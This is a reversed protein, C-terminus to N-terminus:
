GQEGTPDYQRNNQDSIPRMRDEHPICNGNEDPAQSKYIINAPAPNSTNICKYTCTNSVGFSDTGPVGGNMPICLYDDCGDPTEPWFDDPPDSVNVFTFGDPSGPQPGFPSSVPEDATGKPDLGNIPNNQCYGYLNIGGRYGIPDRTLFRGTSPDYFRHTCLILGLYRDSYYGWQGGFGVFDSGGSATSTRAGYGDYLDSSLVAGGGDLRQAVNGREDFTYFTSLSSTCVSVLGDAGVTDTTNLTLSNNYDNCDYRSILTDGDYLQYTFSASRGHGLAKKVVQLGDGDYTYTNNLGGSLVSSLRNEPDFSPTNGYLTVPNGNGDYGTNTNQNDANFANATGKFSTPNGPGGGTAGDYGFTNAYGGARTSTEGTVHSRNLAPNASQGYDYAYTTMGSYPAPAGPLSATVSLRNGAGDYGGTAPVAFDSLVTGRNFRGAAQNVLDRLRGQADRTYTTVVGNGLTKTLLWGNDGYAWQTTENIDNTLSNMRGVADYSYAFNRGDATMASRSGNPYYAYSVTKPSLGTWIVTKSTLKDNDDYVYTQSGTGDTMASRRSYVDYSYYVPGLAGASYTIDTLRSDPADYGYTTTVKNGDVRSTRNSGSDYSPYTITDFSGAVLPATPPTIQAGPYVTQYLYGTANYFYTTVRGGGDTLTKPHYLADYTYTVPKTSGSVSLLEGELGYTSVTQRVAGVNGEDYQSSTVAPGYQLTPAPWQTTAFVSPEAYLYSIQSGGHGSGTQGTAPLITQLPANGITYTHDTENGLADRVSITNGQADYRLRKIKGLSNTVTLPQHIAAAQSYSGDTTYGFTTTITPAANNGPASITLINGLGLRGLPKQGQGTLDYIYSTSATQTGSVTGPLPATISSLLGCPHFGGDDTYGDDDDYIYTIPSKSGEQVQTLEGLAFRSYDYIFTMTTQRPSTKTLLNGHSDWTYTAPQKSSSGSAIINFCASLPSFTQPSDGGSGGAQTGYRVKYGSGVVAGAPVTVTLAAGNSTVNWGGTAINAIFNGSPSLIDWYGTGQNTPAEAGTTPLSASNGQYVQAIANGDSIASPRFPDNPDAYVYQSSLIGRADIKGTHNMNLDYLTTYFYATGSTNTITVKTGYIASTDAPNFDSYTHTNGNGDVLSGVFGTRDYNITATSAAGGGTPSPVSIAHLRASLVGDGSVVTYGYAHRGPLGSRSISATPVIQSVQDLETISSQSVVSRHYVVSRGYADSVSTIGGSTDRNLTLLTAGTNADAIGTLLPWADYTDLTLLNHVILSSPPLSRSFYRHTRRTGPLCRRM